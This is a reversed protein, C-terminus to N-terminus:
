PSILASFQIHMSTTCSFGIIALGQVMPLLYSNTCNYGSYRVHGSIGGKWHQLSQTTGEWDFLPDAGGDM